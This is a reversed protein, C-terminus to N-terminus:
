FDIVQRVEVPGGDFSALKRGWSVAEDIDDAEILYFGAIQEKTEIFPGDTVLLDEGHLRITRAEPAPRLAEGGHYKGLARLEDTFREHADMVPQIEEPPRLTWDDDSGQMMLMFRM